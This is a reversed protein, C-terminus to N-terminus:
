YKDLEDIPKNSLVMRIRDAVIKSNDENLLNAHNGPVDFAKFENAIVYEWGLYKKFKVSGIDSLDSAKFLVVNGDYSRETKDWEEISEWLLDGRKRLLDEAYANTKPLRLLLWAVV